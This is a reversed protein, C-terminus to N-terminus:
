EDSDNASSTSSNYNSVLTLADVSHRPNDGKDVVAASLEDVEAASSVAGAKEDGTSTNLCNSGDDDDDRPMSNPHEDSTLKDSLRPQKKNPEFGSMRGCDTKRRRVGFISRSNILKTCSSVASQPSQFSAASQDRTRHAAGSILRIRSLMALKHQVADSKTSSSSSSSSSSAVASAAPPKVSSSFLPRSIISERKAKQRDDYASVIAISERIHSDILAAHASSYLNGFHHKGVQLKSLV